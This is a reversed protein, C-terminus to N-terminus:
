LVKGLGGYGDPIGKISFQMPAKRDDLDKFYDVDFGFWDVIDTAVAPLTSQKGIRRVFIFEAPQKFLAYAINYVSVADALTDDRFMTIAMEYNDYTQTVVNGNDCISTSDDTDPDTPGLTYGTVVACSFNTGANIEAVTPGVGAPDAVGALPIAWLTTNPSLLKRAAM